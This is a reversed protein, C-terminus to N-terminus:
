VKQRTHFAAGLTGADLYNLTTGMPVGYGLHTFQIHDSLCHEQFCESLYQMTIQGEILSPLAIIVEKYQLSKLRELLSDIKLEKPGINEQASLIGGLVHYQGHYVKAQELTWIDSMDRVICLVDQCRKHDKCIFCENETGISGCVLCEHLSDKLETLLSILPELVQVRREMLYLIMRQSSRYGLGPIRSLIRSMRQIIDM